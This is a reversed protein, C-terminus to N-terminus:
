IEKYHIYHLTQTQNFLLTSIILLGYTNYSHNTLARHVSIFDERVM